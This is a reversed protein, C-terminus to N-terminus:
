PTFVRLGSKPPVLQVHIWGKTYKPNELYLDCTILLSPDALIHNAISGDSDALDVAMGKLHNSSRAGGAKRNAEITRFGSTIRPKVGLLDCLKSVREALDAANARVSTTCEESDIRDEYRGETTLIDHPSITQPM